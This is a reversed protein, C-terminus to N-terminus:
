VYMKIRILKNEMDRLMCSSWQSDYILYTLDEADSHKSAVTQKRCKLFYECNDLSEVINCVNMEHAIYYEKIM